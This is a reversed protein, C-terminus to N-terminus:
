EGNDAVGLPSLHVRTTFWNAMRAQAQTFYGSPFLEPSVYPANQAAQAVGPVYGFEHFPLSGVGQIGSLGDDGAVLTSAKGTM